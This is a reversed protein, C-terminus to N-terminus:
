ARSLRELILGWFEDGQGRYQWGLHAGCGRCDALRWALGEFWTFELTAEGSAVAGPADQFCGLEFVFGHPNIRTHLHHERRAVRDAETTVLTGCRRCVLAESPAPAQRTTPEIAPTTSSTVM